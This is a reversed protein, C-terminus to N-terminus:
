SLFLKNDLINTYIRTFEHLIIVPIRAYFHMDIRIHNFFQDSAPYFERSAMRSPLNKTSNDM